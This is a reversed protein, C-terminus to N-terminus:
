FGWGRVSKFNKTVYLSNKGECRPFIFISEPSFSIFFSHLLFILVIRTPVRVLPFSSSSLLLLHFHFLFFSVLPSSSCSNCIEFYYTLLEIPFLHERELSLSFFLVLFTCLGKKSSISPFFFTFLFLLLLLPDHLLSFFSLQSALVYFSFLINTYFKFIPCHVDFASSTSCFLLLLLIENKMPIEHSSPYLRSSSFQVFPSPFSPLLSPFSPSNLLYSPPLFFYFPLFLLFLTLHFLPSSFTRLFPYSIPSPPLPFSSFSHPSPFSPLPTFLRHSVFHIVFSCNMM